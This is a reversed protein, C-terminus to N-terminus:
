FLNSIYAFVIFLHAWQFLNFINQFRKFCTLFILWYLSYSGKPVSLFSQFGKLCPLFSPFQLKRKPVCHCLKSINAVTWILYFFNLVLLLLSCLIKVPLLKNSFVLLSFFGLRTKKYNIQILFSFSYKASWVQESCDM